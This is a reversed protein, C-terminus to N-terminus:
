RMMTTSNAALGRVTSAHARMRMRMRRLKLARRTSSAVSSGKTLLYKGNEKFTPELLHLNIRMFEERDSGDFTFPDGADGGSGGRRAAGVKAAAAAAVPKTASKKAKTKYVLAFFVHPRTSASGGRGKRKAVKTAWTGVHKDLEDDNAIEVKNKKFYSQGDRARKLGFVKSQAWDIGAIGEEEDDIDAQLALYFDDWNIFGDLGHLTKEVSNDLKQNTSCVVAANFITAREPVDGADADSGCGATETDAGAKRKTSQQSAAM